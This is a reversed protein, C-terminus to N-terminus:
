VIKTQLCYTKITLHIGGRVTGLNKWMKNYPFIPLIFQKPLKLASTFCLDLQMHVGGIGCYLMIMKKLM